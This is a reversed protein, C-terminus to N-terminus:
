GEVLMRMRCMSCAQDDGSTCNCRDGIIDLVMPKLESMDAWAKKLADTYVTITDAAYGSEALDLPYVDDVCEKCIGWRDVQNVGCAQCISM